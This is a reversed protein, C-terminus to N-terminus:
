RQFLSYVSLLHRLIQHQRQYLKHASIRSLHRLGRYRSRDLHLAVDPMYRSTPLKSFLKTPNTCRPWLLKLFQYHCTGPARIYLALPTRLAQLRHQDLAQSVLHHRQSLNYVSLLHRLTQYQQLGLLQMSKPPGNRSWRRSKRAATSGSACALTPWGNLSLDCNRLM